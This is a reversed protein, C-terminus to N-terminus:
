PGYLSHERVYRAWRELVRAYDGAAKTNDVAFMDGDPASGALAAWLEMGNGGRNLAPLYATVRTADTVTFLVYREGPLFHIAWESDGDRFALSRAGDASRRGISGAAEAVATSPPTAVARAELAPLAARVFEADSMPSGAPSPAPAPAPMAAPDAPSGGPTAFYLKGAITVAFLVVGLSAFKLASFRRRRPGDEQDLRGVRASMPQASAAEREIARALEQKLLRAEVDHPRFHLYADVEHDLRALEYYSAAALMRLRIGGLMAAPLVPEPGPAVPSDDSVARAIQNVVAPPIGGFADIWQVASLLYELDDEPKVDEIRVPFLTVSRDVAREIERMVHQSAGTRSSLVVVMACSASIAEMIARSYSAGPPIDRFAIWCQLGAAELAACLAEAAARDESAHSIFIQGAPAM